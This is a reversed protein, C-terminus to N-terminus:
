GQVWPRKQYNRQAKRNILFHFLVRTVLNVKTTYVMVFNELLELNFRTWLAEERRILIPCQIHLVSSASPVLNNEITLQDIARAFFIVSTFIKFFVNLDNDFNLM